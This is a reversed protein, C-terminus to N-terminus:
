FDRDECSYILLRTCNINNWILACENLLIVETLVVETQLNTM